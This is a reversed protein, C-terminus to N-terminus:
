ARDPALRTNAILAALAAGLPWSWDNLLTVANKAYSLLGTLIKDPNTGATPDTKMEAALETILAIQGDHNTSEVLDHFGSTTALYVLGDAVAVPACHNRGENAFQADPDRQWFCPTDEAKGHDGHAFVLCGPVVLLALALSRCGPSEKHLWRVFGPIRRFTNKTM